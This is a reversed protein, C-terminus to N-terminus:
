YLNAAQGNCWGYLGSPIISSDLAHSYPFMQSFVSQEIKPIGRSFLIEKLVAQLVHRSPLRKIHLIGYVIM